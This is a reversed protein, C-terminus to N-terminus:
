PRRSFGHSVHTRRYALLTLHPELFSGGWGLFFVRLQGIQLCKCEELGTQEASNSLRPEQDQILVFTSEGNSEVNLKM